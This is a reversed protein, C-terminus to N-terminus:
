LDISLLTVASLDYMWSYGEAAYKGKLSQDKEKNTLARGNVECPVFCIDGKGM